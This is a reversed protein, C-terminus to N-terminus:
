ELARASGRYYAERAASTEAFLPDIKHAARHGIAAPAVIEKARHMAM